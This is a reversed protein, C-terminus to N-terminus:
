LVHPKHILLAALREHAYGNIGAKHQAEQQDICAAMVFLKQEGLCRRDTRPLLRQQALLQQRAAAWLPVPCDSGRAGRKERGPAGVSMHSKAGPAAAEKDEHRRRALDCGDALVHHHKRKCPRQVRVGWMMLTGQATNEHNDGERIGWGGGLNAEQSSGPRASSKCRAPASHHRKLLVKRAHHQLTM